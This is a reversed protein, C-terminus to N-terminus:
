PLPYGSSPFAIAKPRRFADAPRLGARWIRRRGSCRTEAAQQDAPAIRTRPRAEVEDGADTGARQNSGKREEPAFIVTLQALDEGFVPPLVNEGVVYRAQEFSGRQGVVSGEARNISSIHRRYRKAPCRLSRALPRARSIPVVLRSVCRGTIHSMPRIAIRVMIRDFAQEASSDQQRRRRERFKRAPGSNLNPHTSLAIVFQM